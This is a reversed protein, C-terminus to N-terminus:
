CYIMAFAEQFLNITRCSGSPCNDSILLRLNKVMVEGEKCPQTM